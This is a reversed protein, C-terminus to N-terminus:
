DYTDTNPTQTMKWSRDKDHLETTQVASHNQFILMINESFFVGVLIVTQILLKKTYLIVM